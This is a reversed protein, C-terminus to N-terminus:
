LECCRFRIWDPHAAALKEEESTLKDQWMKSLCYNWVLMMVEPETLGEPLDDGFSRRYEAIQDYAEDTTTINELEELNEYQLVNLIFAIEKEPATKLATTM